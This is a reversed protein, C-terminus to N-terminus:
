EQLTAQPAIIAYKKEERAVLKVKAEYGCFPCFNFQTGYEGNLGWLSGDEKECVQDVASGYGDFPANVECNHM